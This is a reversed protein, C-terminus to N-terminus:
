PHPAALNRQKYASITPTDQLGIMPATLTPHITKLVAPGTSGRRTDTALFHGRQGPTQAAVPRQWRSTVRIWRSDSHFPFVFDAGRTRPVPQPCRGPANLVPSVRPVLATAAIRRHKGRLASGSDGALDSDGSYTALAASFVHAGAGLCGVARIQAM